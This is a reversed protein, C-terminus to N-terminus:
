RDEFLENRHGRIDAKLAAIIDLAKGIRGDRCLQSARDARRFFGYNVNDGGFTRIVTAKIAEARQICANESTQASSPAVHLLGAIFLACLAGPLRAAPGRRIAHTRLKPMRDIVRDQLTKRM